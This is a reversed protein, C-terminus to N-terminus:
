AIKIEFARRTSSNAWRAFVTKQDQAHSSEISDRTEVEIVYEAGNDHRAYIDPVYGGIEPPKINGPLDSWVHNWGATIVKEAWAAVTADHKEQNQKVRKYVM